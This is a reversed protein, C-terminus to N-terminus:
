ARQLFHFDGGINPYASALEAYCLAGVISLLGGAAWALLIVAESGAAGAVLSPSRFIGAGIVIGVTLALVEHPKLTTRPAGSGPWTAALQPEASAKLM